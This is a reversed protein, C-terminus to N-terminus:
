VVKSCKIGHFSSGNGLARSLRMKPGQGASLILISHSVEGFSTALNEFKEIMAGAGNRGKRHAGALMLVGDALM